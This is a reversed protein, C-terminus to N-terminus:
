WSLKRGWAQFSLKLAVAAPTALVHEVLRLAACTM